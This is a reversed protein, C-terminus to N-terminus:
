YLWNNNICFYLQVYQKITLCAFLGCQGWPKCWKLGSSAVIRDSRRCEWVSIKGTIGMIIRFDWGGFALVAKSWHKHLTKFQWCQFSFDSGYSYSLSIMFLIDGESPLPYIVDWVIMAVEILTAECNYQLSNQSLWRNVLIKYVKVFKKCFFSDQRYQM